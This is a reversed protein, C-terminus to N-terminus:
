SDGANERVYQDRLAFKQIKGSVTQPYTTVFQWFRPVKYGALRERCYAALETGSPHAGSRLRVFAGVIEGWEPDPLGVVAADAVDPHTFLVDEIERPYVNEGGRIIMDRLRGQIRVYGADDISGLDGTHLWGGSDLAARTAQANEFYGLMVCCGRACIEGEQGRPLTVGTKPDAVKVETHPLPRGVTQAWQSNPDGPRTHTIYPSSETQGFGIAVQVDLEREARRVLEVPIPAGGLATLRWSTLDRPSSSHEDLMRILMTPVSLMLTGREAEFLDLMASADFGTPLVHIGGTHLAGLTVLGCGATHFLPM